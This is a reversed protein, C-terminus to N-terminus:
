SACPAFAETHRPGALFPALAAAEAEVQAQLDATMGAPGDFSYTEMWTPTDSPDDCRQLLRAVLGPHRQRLRQQFAQVTVVAAAAHAADLRYYIFLERMTM